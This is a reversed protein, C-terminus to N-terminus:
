WDSDSSSYYTQRSREREEAEEREQRDLDDNCLEDAEQNEARPIWLYRIHGLEAVKDDLRSARAILDRNAVEYGCSNVWGNASWKYIWDTMCGIAYKSDTHITVDLDPNGALMDYKKLVVELAVIIGTIEARQNTPTPDPPLTRKWRGTSGNRKELVAAAAGIADSRGNRRCGGDTYFKM